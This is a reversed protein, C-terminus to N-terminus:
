RFNDLVVLPQLSKCPTSLVPLNISFLSEVGEQGLRPVRMRGGVRPSARMTFVAFNPIVFEEAPTKM